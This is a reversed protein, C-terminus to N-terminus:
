ILSNKIFKHVSDFVEIKNEDLGHGSLEFKVLEINANQKEVFEISDNISVIADKEGHLIILPIHKPWNVTEPKYTFFELGMVPNLIFNDGIKIEHENNILGTVGGKPFFTSAWDSYEPTFTKLYNTVPNLFVISNIVSLDKILDLSLLLISAGFSAAVISYKDYNSNMYNIASVFDGIMGSITAQYSPIGSDGHGRFDFRVVSLKEKFLQEELEVYFGGEDKSSTIGHVLLVGNSSIKTEKFIINHSDINKM